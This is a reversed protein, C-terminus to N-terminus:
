CAAHGRACHQGAHRGGACPKRSNESLTLDAVADLAENLRTIASTLSNREATGAAPLGAHNWFDPEQFKQLLLLGDVVDLDNSPGQGPAIARVDDIFQDLGLDHMTRELRYGLLAGLTQGTRIGDLLHMGLRVKGSSLDIEFPRQSADNHALYGARLM